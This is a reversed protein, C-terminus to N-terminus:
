REKRTVVEFKEIEGDPKVLSWTISNGHVKPILAARYDALEYPLRVLIARRPCAKVCAFCDWCDADSRCYVAGTEPDVAMLDGPCVEVCRPEDLGRCNNCTGLGAEVLARDVAAEDAFEGCGPERKERNIRV